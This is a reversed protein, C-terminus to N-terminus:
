SDKLIGKKIIDFTSSDIIGFKQIFDEVKPDKRPKQAEKTLKEDLIDLVGTKFM